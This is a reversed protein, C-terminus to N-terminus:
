HEKLRYIYIKINIYYIKQQEIHLIKVQIRWCHIGIKVPEIDPFIWRYTGLTSPERIVCKNDDILQM